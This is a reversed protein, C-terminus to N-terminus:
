IVLKLSIFIIPNLKLFVLVVVNTKNQPLRLPPPPSTTHVPERKCCTFCFINKDEVVGESAQWDNASPYSVRPPEFNVKLHSSHVLRVCRYTWLSIKLRSCLVTREYKSCAVRKYEYKPCILCNVSKYKHHTFFTRHVCVCVCCTHNWM